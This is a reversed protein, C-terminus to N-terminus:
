AGWCAFSERDRVKEEGRQVYGGTERYARLTNGGDVVLIGGNPLRIAGGIWDFQYERPAQFDQGITLVPEARITWNVDGVSDFNESIRVGMSDRVAMRGEHGTGVEIDETCGGLALLAVGIWLCSRYGITSTGTGLGLEVRREAVPRRGVELLSNYVQRSPHPKM